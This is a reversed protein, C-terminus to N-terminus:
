RQRDSVCGTPLAGSETIAPAPFGGTTVTFSGAAGVVLQASAASTISPPTGVYILLSQRVTPSVGNSATITVPYTGPQAPATGSITATGDGNDRFTIGAPM